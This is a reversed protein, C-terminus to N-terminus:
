NRSGISATNSVWKFDNPTLSPDFHLGPGESTAVSTIAALRNPTISAFGVPTSTKYPQLDVAFDWYGNEYGIVGGAPAWVPLESAPNYPDGTLTVMRLTQCALSLSEFTDWDPVEGTKKTQWTIRPHFPRRGEYLCANKTNTVVTDVNPGNGLWTDFQLTIRPNRVRVTQTTDRDGSGGVSDNWRASVHTVTNQNDSSQAIEGTVMCGPIAAGNLDQYVVPDAGSGSPTPDDWTPPWLKVTYPDTTTNEMTLSFSALNSGAPIRKLVNSNPNYSYQQGCSNYLENVSDLVTKDKVSIARTVYPAYGDEFYIQAIGVPSLQQNRIRVARTVMTEGAAWDWTAPGSANDGWPVNGLFASRDAAQLQVRWGRTMGRKTRRYEEHVDVNTTYGAFISKDGSNPTVPRNWMMNVPLGASGDSSYDTVKQFWTEGAITDPQWLQWTLVSPRPQEFIRTRGWTITARGILTERDDYFVPNGDADTDPACSLAVSDCWIVPVPNVM